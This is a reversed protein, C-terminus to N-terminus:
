DMVTKAEEKFIDFERERLVAFVGKPIKVPFHNARTGDPKEHVVEFDQEANIFKFVEEKHGDIDVKLPSIPELIQLQGSSKAKHLHDRGEGVAVINDYQKALHVNTPLTIPYFTLDGQRIPEHSENDLSSDHTVDMISIKYEIERLKRNIEEFSM